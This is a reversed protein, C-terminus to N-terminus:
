VFKINAGKKEEYKYIVIYISLIRDKENEEGRKNKTASVAPESRRNKCTPRM